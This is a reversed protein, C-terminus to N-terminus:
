IDGVEYTQPLMVNANTSILVCCCYLLFAEWYFTLEDFFLRKLM